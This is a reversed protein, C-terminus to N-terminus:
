RRNRSVYEQSDLDDADFEFMDNNGQNDTGAGNVLQEDLQITTESSPTFTVSNM